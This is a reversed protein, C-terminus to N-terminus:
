VHARGIQPVKQDIFVFSYTTNVNGLVNYFKKVSRYGGDVLITKSPIYLRNETLMNEFIYMFNDHWVLKFINSNNLFHTYSKTTKRM